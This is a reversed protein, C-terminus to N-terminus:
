LPGGVDKPAERKHVRFWESASPDNAVDRALRVECPRHDPDVSVRVAEVSPAEITPLGFVGYVRWDLEVQLSVLVGRLRAREALSRARADRLAPLTPTRALTAAVIKEPAEEVLQQVTADTAVVLDLLKTRLVELKPVPLQQLLNGAMQLRDQWPTKS